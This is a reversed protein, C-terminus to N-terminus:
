FGRIYGQALFTELIDRDGEIRLKISQALFEDKYVRLGRKQAEYECISLQNYAIELEVCSSSVFDQLLSHAKACEIASQTAATYARVLGGVGLLQGGFYRVIVIGVNILEEGRLVNLSPMGSSGRPEKDDDFSEVIHNFEDFHRSASVFHVAKTHKTRLTDKISIFETFPVIFSLFKSGKSEFSGEAQSILMRM